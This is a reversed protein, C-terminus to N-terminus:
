NWAKVIQKDNAADVIDNLLSKTETEEFLYKGTKGDISTFSIIIDRFHDRRSRCSALSSKLNDIEEQMEKFESLPLTVVAQISM